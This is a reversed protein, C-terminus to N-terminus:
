VSGVPRNAPINPTARLRIAGGSAVLAYAFVGSIWRKRGITNTARVCWRPNLHGGASGGAWGRRPPAWFVSGRSDAAVGRYTGSIAKYETSSAGKKQTPYNRPLLGVACCAIRRSNPRYASPTHSKLAAAGGPRRWVEAGDPIRWIFQFSPSRRWCGRARLCMTAFRRPPWINIILWPPTVASFPRGAGQSLYAMSWLGCHSPCNGLTFM